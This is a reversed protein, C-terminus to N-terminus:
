IGSRTGLTAMAETWLCQFDSQFLIRQEDFDDLAVTLDVPVGLRAEMRRSYRSMADCLTDRDGYRALIQHRTAWQWLDLAPGPLDLDTIWPQASAVFDREWEALPVAHWHEWHVSLQHDILFDLAIGAYRQRLRVLRRRSSRAVPHTELWGDVRRHGVIGDRFEAPFRSIDRGVTDALLAGLRTAPHDGALVVHALWNM